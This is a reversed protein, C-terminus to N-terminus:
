TTGFWYLAAVAVANNLGHAAIPAWLTGTRKYLWAFAAGMSGYVLWLQLTEAVGNGTTGPLEHVLAFAAGSLAMGLRPRGAEWLRGFLVRRFLLEEYAPAILVAFVLLFLPMQTMAERMLPLNTPVPKIGLQAGLNSLVTSGVFVAVAVLLVWGWTAPVRAAQWSRRREAAGAPRRLFYLLLAASLTSVLAILLQALAGPQGLHSAVTAALRDGPLGQARLEMTVQVGRVVGWVLGSLVSVALLVVAALLVDLVFGLLPKGWGSPPAASTLPPPAPPYSPLSTM